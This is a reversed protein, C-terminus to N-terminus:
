LHLSEMCCYCAEYMCVGYCVRTCENYIHKPEDQTVLATVPFLLLFLCVFLFFFSFIKKILNLFYIKGRYCFLFFVFFFCFEVTVVEWFICSIYLYCLKCHKCLSHKCSCSVRTPGGANTPVKDPTSRWSAISCRYTLVCVRLFCVCDPLFLCM